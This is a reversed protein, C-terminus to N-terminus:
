NIIVTMTNAAKGDATVILNVLGAGALGRPLPGLNIQDLGAYTGQAGIYTVPVNVGNVIANMSAAHRFGTGYLILFVQDGPEGLNIPNPAFTNDSSLVASSMVTQTGDVHVVVVQGAYPGQGTMNATFLGPATNAINVATGLTGGGPLTVTVAALGAAAGSPILFNIQSTSAFVGYLLAARTTGASDTVNVASGALSTALPLTAATDGSMGTVGFISAIEDAAFRDSLNAAANVMAPLPTSTSGSFGSDGSYQADIPRALVTSAVGPAVTASAKGGSLNANAVVAQTSVDVFQVSGTPVGAGPAIPTVASALVLQGSGSVSLSISASTSAPSVIVTSQHSSAAWTGDGGYHAVITQTGVAPASLTFSAAGSALMVSGLPTPQAFLSAGPLEFTVQGTPPGFGAPATVAGVVNATLTVPQGYVPNTPKVSVTITSALASVNLSISAQATPYGAGSYSAIVVHSGAALASTSFTAQGNSLGVTALPTVGDTFQVTGTPTGYNGSVVATFTVTQGLTSQLTSSTLSVSSMAPTPPVVQGTIRFSASSAAATFTAISSNATYETGGVQASGDLVGSLPTDEYVFYQTNPLLILSSPFVYVGGSVAISAAVFGPASALPRASAAKRAENATRTAASLTGLVESLGAPTGTYPAAFLYATGEAVPTVGQDSFFNFTINYWPGGNPTTFSQGFFSPGATTNGGTNLVISPNATVVLTGNVFTFAYNAASLTGASVTIAYNGAPSTAMANTTFSPTGSLVAASDGNVFGAFIASFTPLPVGVAKTSNTATVTLPAQTVTLTGSIFTFSYNGAFLTGAAPTVPYSGVASSVTATTTFSAAGTVVAATDGNVFGTLTASFAALSAGYLKSGNNATVTIVARSITLTGNVFAFSYNAASLTGAAPTILYSGVPSSATATTTFSATGTVVAATDGNVFGSLTVSFAPLSAGYLKSANNASVTLVAPSVTLTGNVFTFSYNAASLSGVVPTIPYRGAPSSTSATTTFSAAGTVVAATDGNVFGTIAGSFAPLSAGYLKSANNATVTLVAGSIILTGNVFSFSYNAASLNGPAPTIPYSGVPSSATAATTFSAAGTVVAATDGNVFGTIAGSFAPLSAGYLKSANNATVTLLAPNITLTGSVFGFSYNAAFLTGAAPTIAYSGVPSSPTATTTFSAAGTVVAATDGNVFGTLIASFAPLSAGYLKFANNATVTLAARSITLTGNVFAFSYNAASLTGAAPTIAYSGVPSSPTATTTFNATGTVVAATDGNVFGTIAGSFAPLSAGYLKSASNATVSLVARAVIVTTSGSSGLFYSNAGPTFSAQITHSGVALTSLNVSAQGSANTAIGSALVLSKTTDTFTVTGSPTGFTSTVTATFTEAQGYSPSLISPSISTTTGAPSVAIVNSTGTIASQVTNAATLTQNGASLFAAPFTGTGNALTKDAPLNAPASATFHVTGTYGTAVSGLADLATVSFSFPSGATATTPAVVSFQTPPETEYAGADCAAKRPAGRQDTGAPALPPSTAFFKCNGRGIAPSGAQLSM